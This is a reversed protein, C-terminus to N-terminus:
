KQSSVAKHSLRSRSLLLRYIILLIISGLVVTGAIVLACDMFFTEPLITIVPDTEWSFIWYDNQFMIEHFLVFLKDFNIFSALGVILPLIISVAASTLLYSREKAKTKRWIILLLLIGSAVGSWFITVFITKVEAFHILGENSAPFTAFKLDGNYFPSCYDILSNYNELIEERSYGSDEVIHLRDVEMYYFPRFFLAISLGISIFFITFLLGTFLDPLLTRISYKM